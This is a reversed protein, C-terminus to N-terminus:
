RGQHAVRISTLAKNVATDAGVQSGSASGMGDAIVGIAYSGDSSQGLGVSDQRVKAFDFHAAGRVSLVGVELAGITARDVVYSPRYGGSAPKSLKLRVDLLSGPEDVVDVGAYVGDRVRSEVFPAPSLWDSGAVAVSIGPSLEQSDPEDAPIDPPLEDEPDFLPEGPPKADDHLFWDFPVTKNSAAADVSAQDGRLDPYGDQNFVVRAPLRPAPEDGTLRKNRRGFPSRAEM